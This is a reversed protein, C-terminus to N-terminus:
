KKICKRQVENGSYEKCAESQEAELVKGSQKQM